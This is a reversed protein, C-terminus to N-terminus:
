RATGRRGDLDITNQGYANVLARLRAVRRQQFELNAAAQEAQTHASLLSLEASQLESKAAELATPIKFINKM